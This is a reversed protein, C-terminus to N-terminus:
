GQPKATLAVHDRSSVVVGGPKEVTVAFLKPEVVRIAARIPVIVDDTDPNIDFVGGDIPYRDDQKADFIWLQYQNANPNNAALGKFRMFGKQEKNSWVIDGTAGTASADGGATWDVKMTDPARQLLQTRQEALPLAVPPTARGFWWTSLAILLSAAAVLWALSELSRRATPAPSITGAVIRPTFDADSDRESGRESAAALHAPAADAIRAKLSAPLPEHPGSHLALAAMAAAREFSEHDVSSEALLERLEDQEAASLEFLAREALLERIRADKQQQENM